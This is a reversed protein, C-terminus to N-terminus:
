QVIYVVGGVSQRYPGNKLGGGYQTEMSTYWSYQIPGILKIKGRILKDDFSTYYSITTNGVAKLKGQISIDDFSNYYQINLNGISRLKGKLLKNEFADYYDFYLHGVMRIKGRKLETESAPYYTVVSSGVSKVKGRNISDVENGYYDIRGPYPQLRPAYYGSSRISQEEIGWEMVRGDDSIRILVNYDTLLTFYNLTSGGSFTVQALEQAGATLSAFFVLICLIRKL